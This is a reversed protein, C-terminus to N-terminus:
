LVEQCFRVKCFQLLLDLQLLERCFRVAFSQLLLDLEDKQEKDMEEYPIGQPEGQVGGEQTKDTSAGQLSQNGAQFLTSSFLSESRWPM